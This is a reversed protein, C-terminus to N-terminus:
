YIQLERLRARDVLGRQLLADRQTNSVASPPVHQGSNIWEALREIPDSDPAAGDAQQKEAAAGTEARAIRQRQARRIAETFYALSRIRSEAPRPSATRQQLIPLVDRELNFGEAEWEDLVSATSALGDLDAGAENVVDLCQPLWVRRAPETPDRAGRAGPQQSPDMSPDISPEDKYSGARPAPAGPVHHRPTPCTTGPPAARPAPPTTPGAGDEKASPVVVDLLALVPHEDATAPIKRGEFGTLVVADSRRGGDERRREIRRIFGAEELATLCNRLKRESCACDDKLSAQKPWCVGYDDAYNALAVLVFKEIPDSIDTGLAWSIAQVSM